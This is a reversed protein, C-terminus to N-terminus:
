KNNINNINRIKEKEKEKIRSRNKNVNIIKNKLVKRKKSYLIHYCAHCVGHAYHLSDLHVCLWAKKNRGSNHYCKICM